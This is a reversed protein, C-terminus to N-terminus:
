AGLDVTDPVLSSKAKEFYYDNSVIRRIKELEVRIGGLESKSAVGNELKHVIQSLSDILPKLEAQKDAVLYRNMETLHNLAEQGCRSVKKSNGGLQDILEGQWERWMTYHTKYYYDNSYKKQYDGQQIYIAAPTHVGEKPKRTFKRQLATPLSACGAIEMVVLVLIIGMTTKKM